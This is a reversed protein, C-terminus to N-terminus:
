GAPAVPVPVPRGDVRMVRVEVHFVRKLLEERLVEWPNGEAVVRGSEMLVLKDAYLGALLMDHTAAVVIGGRSAERRLLTYLRLRGSLDLFSTPEDALVLRAHRALGHAIVARQKEGSSVRSVPRWAIGDAGIERLARLAERYDAPQPRLNLGHHLPYRSAAVFEVVRQGLGPEPLEAPIYAILRARERARMSHVPRGDLLVEGREPRLLGAAVRLLTTKGAGNPGLIVTLRGPPAEFSVDELVVTGNLRVYVRDVRLGRSM